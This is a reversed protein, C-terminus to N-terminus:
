RIGGMLIGVLAAVCGVAYATWLAARAAERLALSM